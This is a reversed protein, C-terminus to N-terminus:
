FTKSVECGEMISAMADLYGHLRGIRKGTSLASCFGAMFGQQVSNNGGEDMGQRIGQNTYLTHRAQWERNLLQVDTVDDEDHWVEEM